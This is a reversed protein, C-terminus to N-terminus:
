TRAPAVPLWLQGEFLQRLGTLVPHGQKRMTSVYSRITLYNTAGAETRYCGSIKQQLKVMRLDREAQNNSFPVTFDTAFRLVDDRYRDLRRLLNASKTRKPRGPQGTREPPANAAHGATILQDYHRTLVTLTRPSLAPAGNAQATKVRDNTAVLLTALEDAWRQGDEAAARLERLHHANCLAHTVTEYHRYPSWGDHIAVGSYGPLVNFEDIAVRGRRRHFLYATLSDTSASHVWGLRGAVRAGTEDLHLVPSERLAERTAEVFEALSEGAEGILSTAFGTSVTIACCESLVETAREIPLHQAVVLYTLLARVGPGYCTPGIAEPPFQGTTLEGCVCRRTEVQHETVVARVQPLEFVQRMERKVVESRALDRDCNGCHGPSHTVVYDPHEVPELRHGPDGTQKGPRRRRAARNPAVPAKAFGEASPPLSSNKSNRGLLKELEAIRATLAAIQVDKELLLASLREVEDSSSEM